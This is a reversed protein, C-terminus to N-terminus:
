TIAWAAGGGDTRTRFRPRDVSVNAAFIRSGVVPKLAETLPMSSFAAFGAEAQKERAGADALLEVAAEALDDYVCYRCADALEPARETDPGFESIVTKKNAWLYGLRVTELNAPRRYHINLIIKSRVIWADRAAGYVRQLIVPNVGAAALKQLVANRRDNLGGYFLVDVDQPCSRDLRTMEPVYGLRVCVVNSFGLAGQLFAVNGPSYDWVDFIELLRMYSSKNAWHSGATLQELNFVVSNRPVAASVEEPFYHSGFIINRSHPNIENIRTEVAFGLRKLAYYVPLIADDFLDMANGGGGVKLKVLSFHM